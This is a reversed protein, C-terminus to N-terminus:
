TYVDHSSVLDIDSNVFWQENQGVGTIGSTAIEPIAHRSGVINGVSLVKLAIAALANRVQVCKSVPDLIGLNVPITTLALGLWYELFAGDETLLKTKFLRQLQWPLRENLAGYCRGRRQM